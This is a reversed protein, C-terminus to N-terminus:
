IRMEREPETLCEQFADRAFMREAYDILPQAQKPLEIDLEPLRWLLPVLSCDVLSFDDSMFFPKVEFIPSLAILSERLEKKAKEAAKQSGNLIINYQSYLDLDIRYLALALDNLLDIKVRLDPEPKTELAALKQELVKMTDGM